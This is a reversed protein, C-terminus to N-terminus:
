WDVVVSEGGEEGESHSRSADILALDRQRSEKQRQRFDEEEQMKIGEHLEAARLREEDEEEREMESVESLSVDHPALGREHALQSRRYLLEAYRSMVHARKPVETENLFISGNAFHVFLDDKFIEYIPEKSDYAGDESDELEGKGAGGGPAHFVSASAQLVCADTYLKM